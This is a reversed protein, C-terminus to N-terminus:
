QVTLMGTLPLNDSSSGVKIEVPGSEVTWANAATNWYKLDQIRLPITFMVTQGPMIAGSRHFGKLEKVSRRAQTQPYSVFLFSVENGPVNGTNTVAVQVDVVGNKTVTTCPVNMFEYKFTTYSLGHGFAYLPAFAAAGGDSAAPAGADADPAMVRGAAVADYYRYGLYYDMVTSGASAGNTSFTPLQAESVPWTIPLKGSFNADGFLLKGIATGGWQGPYWAMVVAPVSDIWPMNVGSGAEVVVVMPKGKAAVDMVLQDQVKMEKPDLGLDPKGTMPNLRDAAGTYEEGEDEPTLGVVVVVFDANDAVSADSGNIVNVGNGGAAAQIGAFPGVSNNPDATV